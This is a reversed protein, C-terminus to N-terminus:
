FSIQRRIPLPSDGHGSKGRDWFAMDRYLKENAASRASKDTLDHPPPRKGETAGM